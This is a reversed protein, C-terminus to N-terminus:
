LATGTLVGSGRWFGCWWRLEGREEELRDERPFVAMNLGDLVVGGQEDREVIEVAARQDERVTIAAKSGHNAMAQANSPALRHHHHSSSSFLTRRVSNLTTPVIGNGSSGNAASSLLERGPM